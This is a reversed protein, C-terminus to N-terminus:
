LTGQYGTAIANIFTVAILFGFLLEVAKWFFMGESQKKNSLWFAALCLIPTAVVWGSWGFWLASAGYGAFIFARYLWSAKSGYGPHLIASLTVAYGLCAWWPAYLLALAGLGAPLIFRRLFKYGKGNLATGGAAFLGTSWLVALIMHWENNM